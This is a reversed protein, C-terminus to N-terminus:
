FKLNKHLRTREHTAFIEHNEHFIVIKTFDRSCCIQSVFDIEPPNEVEFDQNKRASRAINLIEADDRTNINAHLVKTLFAIM